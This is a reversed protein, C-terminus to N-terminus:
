APGGEGAPMADVARVFAKLAELLAEALGAASNKEGQRFRELAAFGDMCVGYEASVRPLLADAPIGSIRKLRLLARFLTRGLGSWGVLLRGLLKESGGAALLMSRMDNVAGRLKEELQYRLNARCLDLTFINQDGYLVQHAERIDGYELPFVDASSLLEEHTMVLPTIRHKRLFSKTVRGMEFIKRPSSKELIVCLNIDSVGKRYTGRAASGYLIVALLDSGFLDKLRDTFNACVTQMIKNYARPCIM